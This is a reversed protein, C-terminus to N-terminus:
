RLIRRAGAYRSSYYDIKLDSKTVGLKTSAHIFTNKGTYIGVHSIGNGYINFFVLDGYKLEARKVPSGKGFQSQSTRPLEVGYVERYARRVFGSCDFYDPGEAGMRHPANEYKEYFGELDGKFSGSVSPQDDRVGSSSSCSMFLLAVSFLLIILLKKM